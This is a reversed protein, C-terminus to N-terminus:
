IGGPNFDVISLILTLFLSLGSGWTVYAYYFLFRSKKVVMATSLVTAISPVTRTTSAMATLLAMAIISVM